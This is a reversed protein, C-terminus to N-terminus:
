YTPHQESRKELLIMAIGYVILTTAVTGPNFFLTDITDEFLVGIIGSPIIAIIVKTWLSLTDNKQEATKTKDFPNLKKFFIMLVALISGFQIVVLFTSIFDASQNLKLFEDVLIMHGTSSVPLWETIGQVIGLIIVKLIKFFEVM